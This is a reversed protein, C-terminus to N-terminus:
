KKQGNCHNDDSCLIAPGPNPGYRWTKVFEKGSEDTVIDKDRGLDSLIKRRWYRLFLREWGADFDNELFAPSNVYAQMLKLYDNPTTTAINWDLPLELVPLDQFLGHTGGPRGTVIPIVGLLLFEYTRYCDWGAGNPSLGFLYTSAAAYIEHPPVPETQCSVKDRSTYTSRNCLHDYLQQRMPHSHENIGFKLFLVDWLETSVPVDGKSTEFSAAWDIWRQKQELGKFPNTHNRLELYRTLFRHQNHYKSLGLPFPIIKEWVRRKEVKNEDETSNLKKVPVNGLLVAQGYWKIMLDDTQIRHGYTIPSNLDSESTILAFPVKINPRLHKFFYTYIKAHNEMHIIVGPQLCPVIDPTLDPAFFDLHHPNGFYRLLVESLDLGDVTNIIRHDDQALSLAVPTACCTPTCFKQTAHQPPFWNPSREVVTADTYSTVSNPLKDKEITTFENPPMEHYRKGYSQGMWMGNGVSPLSSLISLSYLGNFCLLLVFGWRFSWRRTSCIGTRTCCICDPPLQQINLGM